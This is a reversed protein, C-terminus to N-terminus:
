NEEIIPTIENRINQEMMGNAEMEEKPIPWVYNPSKAPLMYLETGSVAGTSSRLTFLHNVQPTFQKMRKLDFLRFGEFCLERRREDFIFRKLEDGNAPISIAEMDTVRNELLRKLDAVALDEQNTNAYAEARNLYAEAVRYSFAGLATYNSGWKAPTSGGSVSQIYVNKRLDGSLFCSELGSAVRYTMVGNYYINPTPDSSQSNVLSSNDGYTFLIEPNINNVVTGSQESLNWLQGGSGKIVNSAATACAEYNEQYLYVRSLLLEAALENPHWLSQKYNAAKFESISHQLCDIMVGYIEEVNTRKYNSVIGTGERRAVGLQNHANGKEYHEAYLNVLEFYAKAKLFYSEGRVSAKEAETGDSHGVNELMYNATLIMRYLLTWYNNVGSKKKNGDIEIDRQWTYLSKYLNKANTSASRNEEIDDTMFDVYYNQHIKIFAERHLIQRYHETTRPIMLDQDEEKLFDHCGGLFVVLSLLIIAKRIM